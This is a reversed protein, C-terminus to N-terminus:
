EVPVVSEKFDQTKRKTRVVIRGQLVSMQTIDWNEVIIIHEQMKFCYCHVSPRVQNRTLQRFEESTVRELEDVTLSDGKFKRKVTLISRYEETAV